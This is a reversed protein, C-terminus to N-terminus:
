FRSARGYYSGIQSYNLITNGVNGSVDSFPRKMKPFWDIKDVNNRRLTRVEDIYLDMFSKGEEQSNEFKLKAVSLLILAEDFEQGLEHVDTNNVLRFPDKYYQVNINFASNPLPWLQVKSYMIGATSDGVPLVAITLGGAASTVTIRGVSTAGKVIREVTTFQKTTAITTTGDTASTYVTEFDPYGSVMGFFTVPINLDSLSSSSFYLLGTDPPQRLLMNESWMRYCTPIGETVIQNSSAYFEQDTLFNMMLPYGYEEHWMFMRHSCQAPLAYEEQGLIEYTGANTASGSYAKDLVIVADDPIFKITYYTSDGSLKIRRGPNIGGTTNWLATACTITTSANTYSGVGSGTDYSTKTTITDKRRLSRWNAERALRFLSTNIVNKVAEDFQTGSQDRIARRKVENQLDLFTFM